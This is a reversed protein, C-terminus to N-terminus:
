DTFRSVPVADSAAPRRIVIDDRGEAGVAVAWVGLSKGNFKLPLVRFFADDVSGHV